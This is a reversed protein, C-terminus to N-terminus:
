VKTADARTDSPSLSSTFSLDVSLFLAVSSEHYHIIIIYHLISYYLVICYLVIYQLM